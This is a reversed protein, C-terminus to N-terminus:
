KNVRKSIIIGNIRFHLKIIHLLLSFSFIKNLDIMINKSKELSYIPVQEKQEKNNLNKRM